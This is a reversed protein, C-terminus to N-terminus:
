GADAVRCSPYGAGPEAAKKRIWGGLNEGVLDSRSSIHQVEITVDKYNSGCNTKYKKPRYPYSLNYNLQEYDFMVVTWVSVSYMGVVYFELNNFDHM